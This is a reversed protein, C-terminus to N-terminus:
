GTAGCGPAAPAAPSPAASAAPAAPPRIPHWEVRRKKTDVAVLPKAGSRALDLREGISQLASLCDEVLESLDDLSYDAVCEDEEDDECKLDSFSLRRRVDGQPDVAQQRALPLGAGGIPVLHPSPQPFRLVDAAAAGGAAGSVFDKFSPYGVPLDIGSQSPWM